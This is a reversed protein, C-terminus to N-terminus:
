PVIGPGHWAKVARLVFLLGYGCLILSLIRLTLVYSRADLFSAGRGTLAAVVAKSGILLAYFLVLFLAAGAATRQGLETIAPAGITIWFIYPNPNLLNVVVARRLSPMASSSLALHRSLPAQPKLGKLGLWALYTGGGLGLIIELFFGHPLIAHLGLALLIIPLDTIVPALAVMLGARVGNQLTESLMLTLLPGPSLGASLGLVLATTAPSSLDLMDIELDHDLPRRRTAFVSTFRWHKRQGNAGSM